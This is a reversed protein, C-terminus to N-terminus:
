KLALGGLLGIASGSGARPPPRAAKPGSENAM